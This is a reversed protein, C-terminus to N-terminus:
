GLADARLPLVAALSGQVDLRLVPVFGLHTRCWFGSTLSVQHLTEHVPQFAKAADSGAILLACDM